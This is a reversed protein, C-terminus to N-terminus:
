ASYTEVDRFDPYCLYRDGLTTLNDFSPIHAFSKASRAIAITLRLKSGCNLNLEKNEKSCLPGTILAQKEWWVM